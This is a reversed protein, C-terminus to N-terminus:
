SMFRGLSRIRARPARSCGTRTVFVLEDPVDKPLFARVSRRTKLAQDVPHTIRICVFCGREVVGSRLLEELAEACPRLCAKLGATSDISTFM